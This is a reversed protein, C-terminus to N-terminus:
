EILSVVALFAEEDKQVRPKSYSETVFNQNQAKIMEHLQGPFASSHEDTIHYRQIAAANRFQTHRWSDAHHTKTLQSKLQRIRLISPHNPNLPMKLM